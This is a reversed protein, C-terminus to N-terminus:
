KVATSHLKDYYNFTFTIERYDLKEIKLMDDPWKPFPACDKIAQLAVLESVPASNEIVKFEEAKGDPYLKFKVVTKGSKEPPPFKSEDLIKYWRAEIKATLNQDYANLSSTTKCGILNIFIFCFLSWVIAKTRVTPIPSKV